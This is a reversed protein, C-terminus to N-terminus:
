FALEGEFARGGLGRAALTISPRGRGSWREEASLRVRDADWTASCAVLSADRYRYGWGLGDDFFMEAAGDGTGAGAFLTLEVASADHPATDPWATALPLIAGSRVLVPLRGLPAAIEVTRGGEHVEGTHLDHWGGIVRPLYARIHFAGEEVVPAVLVDAGLMFTDSDALCEADDFHYFAPAIVPTGDRHAAHALSYLYPMLRYRLKLADRVADTVDPHMWPTNIPDTLQPKWSNMVARPHLSMM